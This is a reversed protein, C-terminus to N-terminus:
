SKSSLPVIVSRPLLKLPMATILAPRSQHHHGARVGIDARGADAAARECIPLPPLPSVRALPLMLTPLPATSAKLWASVSVMEGVPPMLPPPPRTLSPLPVTTSPLM